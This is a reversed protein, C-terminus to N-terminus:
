CKLSGKCKYKYKYKNNTNATQIQQKYKCKYQGWLRRRQSHGELCQLSGKCAGWAKFDWGDIIMILSLILFLILHHNMTKIRLWQNISQAELDLKDEVWLNEIRIPPMQNSKSIMYNDLDFQQDLSIRIDQLLFECISSLTTFSNPQQVWVRCFSLEFAGETLPCEFIGWPTIWIHWCLNKPNTHFRHSLTDLYKPPFCSPLKKQMFSSMQM